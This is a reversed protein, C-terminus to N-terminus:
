HRLAFALAAIAGIIVATQGLMWNILTKLHGDIKQDLGELPQASMAAM